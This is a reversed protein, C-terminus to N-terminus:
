FVSRYALTCVSNKREDLKNIPKHQNSSETMFLGFVIGILNHFDFVGSESRAGKAVARSAFVYVVDNVALATVPPYINLTQCLLGPRLVRAGQVDDASRAM